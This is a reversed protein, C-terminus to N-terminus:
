YSPNPVYTERNSLLIDGGKLIDKACKNFLLNLLIYPATFIIALVIHVVREAGLETCQIAIFIAYYLVLLELIFFVVALVLLFTAFASTMGAKFGSHQRYRHHSYDERSKKYNQTASHLFSSSILM